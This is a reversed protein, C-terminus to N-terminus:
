GPQAPLHVFWNGLWLLGLAAVVGIWLLRRSMPLQTTPAAPVALRCWDDWEQPQVACLASGDPLRAMRHRAPGMERRWDVQTLPV